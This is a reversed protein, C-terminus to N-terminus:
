LSIWKPTLANASLTPAHTSNLIERMKDLDFPARAKMSPPSSFYRLHDILSSGETGDPYIVQGHEGIEVEKLLHNALLQAKNRINRPLLPIVEDILSKEKVKGGGDMKDLVHRIERAVTEDSAKNSLLAKAVDSRWGSLKGLKKGVQSVDDTLYWTKAM